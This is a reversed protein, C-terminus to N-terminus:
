PYEGETGGRRNRIIYGDGHRLDEVTRALITYQTTINNIKVDQVALQTVIEALKELEAQMKEMEEKMAKGVWDNRLVMAYGGLLFLATQVALGILTESM